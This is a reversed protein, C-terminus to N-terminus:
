IAKKNPIIKVTKSDDEVAKVIIVIAKREALKIESFDDNESSKPAFIPVVIVAKIKEKLIPDKEKIKIIRPSISKNSFFCLM